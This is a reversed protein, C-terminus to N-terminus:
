KLKKYDILDLWKESVKFDTDEMIGNDIELDKYSLGYNRNINKLFDLVIDKIEESNLKRVSRDKYFNLNFRDSINREFLNKFDNKDKFSIIPYASVSNILGFGFPICNLLLQKKKPNILNFMAGGSPPGIYIDSFIGAFIGYTDKDLKTKKKFIIRNDHNYLWNPIEFEEGGFIIIWGDNIIAEIAPKYFDINESDRFKSFHDNTKTIQAKSRIQFNVFGNCNKFKSLIKKYNNNDLFDKYLSHNKKKYFELFERSEFCKHYDNSKIQYDKNMIYLQVQRIKISYLIRFISIILKEIKSKHKWFISTKKIFIIKKKFINKILKNHFKKDFAIILLWNEKETINLYHPESITHGFGGETQLFIKYKRKKFLLIALKSIDLALYFINWLIRFLYFFKKM